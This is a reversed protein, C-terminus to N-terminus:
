ELVKLYGSKIEYIEGMAILSNIMDEPDSNKFEKVIEQIPCGLPNKSQKIFDIIAQPINTQSVDKLSPTIFEIIEPTPKQEIEPIIEEEPEIDSINNLIFDLYNKRFKFWNSNSNIQSKNIIESVLCLENEYERIRAVVLVLDGPQLNLKEITSSFDNVKMTATGDDILFKYQSEIAVVVGIINIRSIKGLTTKVYNPEWGEKIVYNGSLILKLPCIKATERNITPKSTEM